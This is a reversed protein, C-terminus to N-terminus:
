KKQRALLAELAVRRTESTGSMVPHDPEGSAAKRKVVSLILVGLLFGGVGCFLNVLSSRRSTSVEAVPQSPQEPMDLPLQLNKPMLGEDHDPVEVAKAM